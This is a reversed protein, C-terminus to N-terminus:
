LWLMFTSVSSEGAMQGTDRSTVTVTSDIGDKGALVGFMYRVVGGRMRYYTVNVAVNYVDSAHGTALQGRKPLEAKLHGKIAALLHEPFV